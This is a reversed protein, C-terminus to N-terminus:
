IKKIMSFLNKVTLKKISELTQQDELASIINPRLVDERMDDFVLPIDFNRNSIKKNFTCFCFINKIANPQSFTM